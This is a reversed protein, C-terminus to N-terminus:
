REPGIGRRRLLSGDKLYLEVQAEAWAVRARSDDLQAAVLDRQAQLVFYNTTAGAALKEQEARLRQEHLRLASLSADVQRRAKLLDAHASRVEMEVFRELNRVSARARESALRSAAFRQRAGGDALPVSVSLGAALDSEHRAGTGFAKAFTTGGTTGELEVFFDLRPLLGNCTEVVDLHGKELLRRAERLEPRDRLGLAVHRVLSDPDQPSAPTDVLAVAADWPLRASDSVLYALQLRKQEVATEAAILDKERSAVEAQVSVLELPAIRGVKLREESEYLLRQALELSQRRIAAEHKALYCEWYARETDRLMRQAYGDLEESAIDLDARARRLPVLGALLGGGSLLAQTYSLSATGVYPPTVTSPATAIGANVTGGTPLPQEVGLSATTAPAGASDGQPWTRSVAGSVTPEFAYAAQRVYRRAIDLDIRECHVLPNHRMMSRLAQELSLAVTDGARVDYVVASAVVAAALVL